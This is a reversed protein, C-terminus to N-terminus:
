IFVKILLKPDDNEIDCESNYSYNNDDEVDSPEIDEDYKEFNNIAYTETSHKWPQVYNFYTKEMKDFFRGGEIHYNARSLNACGTPQYTKPYLAFSYLQFDSQPLLTLINTEPALTLSDMSNLVIDTTPVMTVSDTSNLVIDTTPSLTKIETETSGFVIVISSLENSYLKESEPLSNM